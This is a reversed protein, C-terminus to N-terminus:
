RDRKLTITTEVLVDVAIVKYVINIGVTTDSVMEIDVDEVKVRPEYMDLLDKFVQQLHAFYVPSPNDFLIEDIGGYIDPKFPIDWKATLILNKISKQVAKLGTAPKINGTRPHIPLALDLDKYADEIDYKDTWVRM